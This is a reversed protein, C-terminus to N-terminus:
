EGLNHWVNLLNPDIDSREVFIEARDIVIEHIKLIASKNVMYNLVSYPNM